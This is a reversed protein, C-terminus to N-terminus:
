HIGFSRWIGTKQTLRPLIAKRTTTGTDAPQGSLAATDANSSPSRRLHRPAKIAGFLGMLWAYAAKRALVEISPCGHFNM